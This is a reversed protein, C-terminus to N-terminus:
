FPSMRTEKPGGMIWGNMVIWHDKKKWWILSLGSLTGPLLSGYARDPDDGVGLLHDEQMGDGVVLLMALEVEIVLIFFEKGISWKIMIPIDLVSRAGVKMRVASVIEKNAYRSGVEMMGGCKHGIETFNPPSWESLPLGWVKIWRPGEVSAPEIRNANTSWKQM